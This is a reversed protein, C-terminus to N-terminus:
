VRQPSLNPTVEVSTEIHVKKPKHKMASQMEKVRRWQQKSVMGLRYDRNTSISPGRALEEVTLGNGPTNFELTTFPFQNPRLPHCPLATEKKLM